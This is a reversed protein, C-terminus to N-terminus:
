FSSSSFWTTLFYKNENLLASIDLYIIQVAVFKVSKDNCATELVEFNELSHLNEQAIVCLNPSLSTM